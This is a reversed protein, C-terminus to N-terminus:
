IGGADGSDASCFVGRQRDETGGQMRQPQFVIRCNKDFVSDYVGGSM